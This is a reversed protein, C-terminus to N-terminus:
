QRPGTRKQEVAPHPDPQPGGALNEKEPAIKGGFIYHLTLLDGPGLPRPRGLAPLAKAALVFKPRLRVKGGLRQALAKILFLHIYGAEVYLRPFQDVLPAM